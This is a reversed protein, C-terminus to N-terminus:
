RTWLRWRRVFTCHVIPALAFEMEPDGLDRRQVPQPPAAARMERARLATVQPALFAFVVQTWVREWRETKQPPESEGPERRRRRLILELARKWDGVEPEFTELWGKGRWHEAVGPKACCGLLEPFFVSRLPRCHALVLESYQGVTARLRAVERRGTPTLVPTRARLWHFDVLMAQPM